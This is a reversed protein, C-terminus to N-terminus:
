LLSLQRSLPVEVYFSAGDRHRTCGVRAGMAEAFQHAIQLGLGSSAPRAHHRAAGAHPQRLSQWLANPVRPGYDRVGLRVVTASRKQQLFIEVRGNPDSYHLANDAFNCLIRRLLDRNAVVTPLSRQRRSALLKGHAQYLPTLESAVESLVQGAYLPETPFLVTQSQYAKTLGTSLRLSKESVLRIQETLRQRERVDDVGELELSLQRILALPAKLEHAAQVAPYLGDAFFQGRVASGQSGGRTM